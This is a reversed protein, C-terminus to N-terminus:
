LRTKLRRLASCFRVVRRWQSSSVPRTRGDPVSPVVLCLSTVFFPDCRLSERGVSVGIAPGNANSDDPKYFNSVGNANKNNFRFSVAFFFSGKMISPTTLLRSLRNAWNPLTPKKETFRSM